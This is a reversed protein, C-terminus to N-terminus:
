FIKGELSVTFWTTKGGVIQDFVGITPTKEQVKEKMKWKIMQLSMGHDNGYQCLVIWAQQNDVSIQCFHVMLCVLYIHFLEPLFRECFFQNM